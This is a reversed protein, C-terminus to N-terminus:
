FKVKVGGYAALPAAPVVSRPDNLAIGASQDLNGRNFFTGFTNYKTNLVNNVLGYIQINKTLDYSTHLDVRSRAGLTPAVNGEDGHFFQSSAWIWDAGFKWEPLIAYEAGLKIKHAAVGPLKSGPTVHSCTVTADFSCPAAWENNASAIELTDRFTADTFNYGLYATFRETRYDVGLEVGQRLTEGANVFYGRGPEYPSAVSIIDDQNLTRFFGVNWRLKSSGSTSEGKLGAEFTRSVVQKLPPDDTLFSEILCPNIPDACALEAPTPARNAESYGGYVSLGPFLKYTAGAMPNFRQFAHESSIDPFNGTLDTLTLRAFNYRGGVTVALDSTLDLTNSFYLGLYKNNTLINRPTFADGLTIGLGDIVLKDGIVGLESQAGYKVRGQDYSAGVLFQNGLGFLKSKEVAQVSGGFSHADQRTRDVTALGDQHPITGGLLDVVATGDETCLDGATGGVAGCDVFENLNADVHRQKFRRGYVLGSLKLTPTVVVTGNASLMAIENRTTQPSTFTLRRSIDLLEVPAASTVGFDNRAGTFNLHVENGGDKVGIDAYLRRINSSAFDRYGNDHIGEAAIYAAMAGSRQGAQIAVQKRGFSGMRADVEGGQYTFGDKMGLSIAGGIANLGFVPNNSMVTVDGIANSPIADFNVIDGFSENIRVGNQYVALGQAFGNVPSAEFGRYQINYNFESGQADNMIIGPVHAQLASEVTPQSARALEGATVTSVGAPVKEIPIESGGVPSMKVYGAEVSGEPASPAVAIPAAPPAPSATAAPASAVNPSPAVAVPKPAAKPAAVKRPAPAPAPDPEPAVAQVPKKPKPAPPDEVVPKPKPKEQIVQVPPLM